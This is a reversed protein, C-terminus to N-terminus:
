TTAEIAAANRPAPVFWAPRIALAGLAVLVVVSGGTDILPIGVLMVVGVGALRAAHGQALTVVFPILGLWAALVGVIYLSSTSAWGLGDELGNAIGAVISATAVLGASGRVGPTPVLHAILLVSAATLLWAMSYLWVAAWDLATVPDVYAPDAFSLLSRSAWALGTALWIIRALATM